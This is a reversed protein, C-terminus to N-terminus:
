QENIDETNQNNEIGATKEMNEALVRLASVAKRYDMRKPGLIGIVSQTNGMPVTCFVMGTDSFATGDHENGIYIKMDSGFDQPVLGLNEANQPDPSSLLNKLYGKKKDFMDMLSRLKEVDSFEPYSLLNSLGSIKVSGDGETEFCSFAIRIIPNILPALRGAEAEMKMILPMTVNELTIGTLNENLVRRIACLAEDNIYYETKVHESRVQKTGSIMVLLFSTEDVFVTDFRSITDAGNERTFSLTVCQTLESMVKGAQTIIKDLESAKFHMLENIVNLEEMTLRYNEMLEDVYLRYASSSPVRGASTHPKDLYGMNELESMENRITAPSLSINGYSTLFKSGVPEGSDIYADIISKLIRKKRDSLEM